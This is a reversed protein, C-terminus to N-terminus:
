FQLLFLLYSVLIMTSSEERAEAGDGGTRGSGSRCATTWTTTRSNQTSVRVLEHAADGDQQTNLCRRKRDEDIFRKTETQSWPRFM